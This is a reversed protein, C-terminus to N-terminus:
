PALETTLDFCLEYRGSVNRHVRFREFSCSDCTGEERDEQYRDDVNVCVFSFYLLIAVLNHIEFSMLKERLTNQLVGSRYPEDM